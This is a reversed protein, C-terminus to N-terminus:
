RVAKATVSVRAAYTALLAAEAQHDIGPCLRERQDAARKQSVGAAEDLANFRADHPHRAPKGDRTVCCASAGVHCSPCAVTGVLDERTVPAQMTRQEAAQEPTLPVGFGTIHVPVGDFRHDAALWAFSITVHLAVTEPAIQLATRWVEFDLPTQLQLDLKAHSGRFPQHITIHADPLSEFQDILAALAQVGTRQGSIPATAEAVPETTETTM